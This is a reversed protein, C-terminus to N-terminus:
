WLCQLNQPHVTASVKCSFSWLVDVIPPSLPVCWWLYSCSPMGMTLSTVRFLASGLSLRSSWKNERLYFLSWTRPYLKGEPIKPRKGNWTSISFFLPCTIGLSMLAVGVVVGHYNKTLSCLSPFSSSWVSSNHQEAICVGLTPSTHLSGLYTGRM